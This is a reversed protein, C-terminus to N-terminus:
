RLSSLLVNKQSSNSDKADKGGKNRIHYSCDSFHFLVVGLEIGLELCQECFGEISPHEYGCNKCIGIGFFKDLLKELKDEQNRLHYQGLKFFSNFKPM